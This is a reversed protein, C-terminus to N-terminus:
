VLELLLCYCELYLGDRGVEPLLGLIMIVFGFVAVAGSKGLRFTYAQESSSPVYSAFALGVINNIMKSAIEDNPNADLIKRYQESAFTLKDQSLCIQLFRKHEKENDYHAKVNDWVAKLEDGVEVGKMPIYTKTVEPKETESDLAEIDPTEADLAKPAAPTKQTVTKEVFDQIPDKNAKNKQEMYKKYKEFVVGCFDCSITNSVNKKGCRPCTHNLDSETSKSESPKNFNLGKNVSSGKTDGM